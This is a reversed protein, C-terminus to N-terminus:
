AAPMAACGVHQLGLGLERARAGVRDAIVALARLELVRDRHQDALAGAANVSAGASQFMATGGTGSTTGDSSSCRRGSMAAASRATAAAFAFMPM